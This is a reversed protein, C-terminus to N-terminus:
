YLSFDSYKGIVAWRPQGHYRYRLKWIATGTKTITFVLGDGDSKGAVRQGKRVMAQLQVDTLRGM